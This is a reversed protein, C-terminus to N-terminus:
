EDILWCDIQQIFSNLGMVLQKLQSWPSSFIIFIKEWYKSLHLAMNFEELIHWLQPIHWGLAWELPSPRFKILAHSIYSVTLRVGRQIKTYICKVFELVWLTCVINLRCALWPCFNFNSILYINVSKLSCVALNKCAIEWQDVKLHLNNWSFTIKLWKYTLFVPASQQHYYTIQFITTSQIQNNQFGFM